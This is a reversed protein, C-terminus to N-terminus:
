EEKQIAKGGAEEIKNIASSSFEDAHVILTNKVQGGGLVKDIDLQSADIEYGKETKDAIEDKTLEEINMDIDSINVTNKEEKKSPKFGYKGLQPRKTREHKKRGAKGRGGKNGGGRRNKQSGAGHTRSGRGRKKKKRAM